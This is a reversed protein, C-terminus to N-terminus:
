NSSEFERFDPYHVGPQAPQWDHEGHVTYAGPGAVPSGLIHEVELSLQLSIMPDPGGGSRGRLRLRDAGPAKVRRQRALCPRKHFERLHTPSTRPLTTYHPAAASLVQHKVQVLLQVRIDPADSGRVDVHPEAGGGHGGFQM